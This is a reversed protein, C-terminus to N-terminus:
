DAITAPCGNPVYPDCTICNAKRALEGAILMARERYEDSITMLPLNIIYAHNPDAPDLRVDLGYPLERVQEVLISCYGFNRDLYAVAARPTIGVSLGDDADEERLVFAGSRVKHPPNEKRVRFSKDAFARFIDVNNELLDGLNVNAAAM